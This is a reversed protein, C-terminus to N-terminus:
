EQYEEQETQLRQAHLRSGIGIAIGLIALVGAVLLIAPSVPSVPTFVAEIQTPNYWIATGGRIENANSSIVHGVHLTVTNQFFSNTVTELQELSPDLDGLKLFVMSLHYQNNGNDEVKGNQTLVQNFQSFNDGRFNLTYTEGAKHWNFDIGKAKYESEAMDFVLDLVGLTDSADVSPMPVGMEYSVVSGIVGGVLNILKEDYRIQTKLKWSQNRYFTLDTKQSCATLLIIILIVPWIFRYKMFLPVKRCGTYKRVFKM